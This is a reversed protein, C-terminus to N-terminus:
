QGPPPPPVAGPPPPMAGPPVAGPPPAVQGREPGRQARAQEREQATVVGDHNLDQADFRALMMGEFQQRTVSPSNAFVQDLMRGMMGAGRGGEGGGRSAQFQALAQEAEPRTVVGDRNADIMQFIMDARQRAEERTQDRQGFGHGGPAQALAPTSIAAAGLAIAAILRKM